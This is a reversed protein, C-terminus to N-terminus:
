WDERDVPSAKAHAERLDDDTQALYRKLVQLDSHGMLRSLTIVDVGNRLMTLAYLRRFTHIGRPKVKADKSRNIVIWRLGSYTLRARDDVSLFLPDADDDRMALYRKLLKRTNKGVYVTRTKNGKGHCILLSGRSLNLDDLDLQLLESARIGTDVLTLLIAKDRLGRFDSPCKDVIKMVDAMPIPQIPADPVKPPKLKAIPNSWGPPEEESDYWRLFTKLASYHNRRGIVTLGDHDLLELYDRLTSPTIQEISTICSQACFTKFRKLKNRYNTITGPTFGQVKRDFLFNDAWDSILHSDTSKPM